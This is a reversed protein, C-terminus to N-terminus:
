RSTEIGFIKMLLPRVRVVVVFSLCDFLFSGLRIVSIFISFNVIGFFFVVTFLIKCDEDFFSFGILIGGRFSKLVKFFLFNLEGLLSLKRRPKFRFLM